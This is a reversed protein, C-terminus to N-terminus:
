DEIAWQPAIIAKQDAFITKEPNKKNHEANSGMNVVHNQLRTEAAFAGHAEKPFLQKHFQFSVDEGKPGFSSGTAHHAFDHAIRFLDNYLMPEGEHHFKSPELMPHQIKQDGSGYGSDTPFYALHNNTNIDNFLDKSTKYPNEGKIKSIKLGNELLHQFQKATHDKLAKYSAKVEPHEPDHKANEYFNAMKQGREGGNKPTLSYNLAPLKNKQAYDNFVKQGSLNPEFAKELDESKGFIDYVGSEKVKPTKLKKKYQSILKNGAKDGRIGREQRIADPDLETGTDANYGGSQALEKLKKTTIGRMNEKPFQAKNLESKGFKQKARQIAEQNRGQARLNIRANPSNSDTIGKDNGGWQVVGEDFDKLRQKNEPNLNSALNTVDYLEGTYPDKRRLGFQQETDLSIRQPSFEHIKPKGERPLGKRKGTTALIPKANEDLLSVKNGYTPDDYMARPYSPQGMRRRLPNEMAQPQIEEQMQKSAGAMLKGQKNRFSGHRVTGQDMWEQAEALGMNKPNIVVHAIEHARAPSNDQSEIEGSRHDPKLVGKKNQKREGTTIDIKGKSPVIEQKFHQKVYTNMGDLQKQKYFDDQPHGGEKHYDNLMKKDHEKTKKSSRLIQKLQQAENNIKLYINQAQKKQKLINKYKEKYQPDKKAREKFFDAKQNLSNLAGAQRRLNYDMQNFKEKVTRFGTNKTRIQDRVNKSRKELIESKKLGRTNLYNRITHAGEGKLEEPLTSQAPYVTNPNQQFDEYSQAQVPHFLRVTNPSEALHTAMYGGYGMDKLTRHLADMRVVHNKQRENEVLNLHDNAFDYIPHKNLDIRAYHNPSGVLGQDAPAGEKGMMTWYTVPHDYTPNKTGFNVGTGQFAPDIVEPPDVFRSYHGIDLYKPSDESKQVTSDADKGNLAPNGREEAHPDRTEIKPDYRKTDEQNMEEETPFDLAHTFRNGNFETYPDDPKPNLNTGQTPLVYKVNGKNDFIIHKHNLGDSEILGMQGNKRALEHALKIQEPHPKSILIYPEVAGEYFGTTAHVNNPNHARLAEIAQDRTHTKASRYRPFETTFLVHPANIINKFESNTM